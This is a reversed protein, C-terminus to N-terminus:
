AQQALNLVATHENEWQLFLGKACRQSMLASVDSRPFVAPKGDSSLFIRFSGPAAGPACFLEKELGPALYAADFLEETVMLCRLRLVTPCRWSLLIEDMFFLLTDLERYEVPVSINNM